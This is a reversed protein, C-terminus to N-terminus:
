SFEGETFHVEAALITRHKNAPRKPPRLIIDIASRDERSFFSMRQLRSTDVRASKVSARGCGRHLDAQSIRPVCAASHEGRIALYMMSPLFNTPTSLLEKEKGLIRGSRKLTEVSKIKELVASNSPFYRHRGCIKLCLHKM